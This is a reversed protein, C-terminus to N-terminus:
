SSVFSDTAFRVKEQIEVSTINPYPLGVVIVCRGLDDSFNIGESLKGGVVAFLLAGNPNLRIQRTYDALVTECNGDKPERFIQFFNSRSLCPSTGKLIFLYVVYTSIYTVKKKSSICDFSSSDQLYKHFIGEYEYSPLFM